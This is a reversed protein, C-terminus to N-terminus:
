LTHIVRHTNSPGHEHGAVESEVEQPSSIKQAQDADRNCDCQCHEAECPMSSRVCGGHICDVCVVAGDEDAAYLTM